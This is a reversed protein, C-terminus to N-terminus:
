LGAKADSIVTSADPTSVSPKRCFRFAMTGVDRRETELLPLLDPDNHKDIGHRIVLLADTAISGSTALRDLLRSMADGPRLTELMHYPPDVFVLRYAAAEAQPPPGQWEHRLADVALM